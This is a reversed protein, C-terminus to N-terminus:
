VVSSENKSSGLKKEFYDNCGTVVFGCDQYLKLARKNECAVDLFQKTEGEELLLQVVESLAQGGYGHGQYDPLLCFGFIFAGEDSIQVSLVGIKEQGKIVLFARTDPQHFREPKIDGKPLQFSIEMCNVIFSVDEPEAKRIMIDEFRKPQQKAESLEMCYESFTYQTGVQAQAFRQGSESNHDVVILLNPIGRRKLEEIAQELLKQFIGKRRAEPLVMGGIEAERLNFVYLGLFGVLVGNEYYLFDNAEGKSRSQLMDWNLKVEIKEYENCIKSLKKIEELDKEELGRKIMFGNKRTTM